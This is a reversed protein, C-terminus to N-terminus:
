LKPQNLKLNVYAAMAHISQFLDMSFEEDPIEIGFEAELSVLLQVLNQSDLGLGTDYLPKDLDLEQSLDENGLLTSVMCKIRGEIETKSM